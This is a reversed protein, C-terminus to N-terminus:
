RIFIPGGTHGPAQRAELLVSDQFPADSRQAHHPQQDHQKRGVGVPPRQQLDADKSRISKALAPPLARLHAPRSQHRAKTSKM